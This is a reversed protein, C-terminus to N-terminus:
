ESPWGPAHRREHTTEQPRWASNGTSDSPLSGAILMSNLASITASCPVSLNCESAMRFERSSATRSILAHATKTIVPAFGFVVQSESMTSSSLVPNTSVSRLDTGIRWIGGRSWTNEGNAVDTCPRYVPPKRLRHPSRRSKWPTPDISSNIAAASAGPPQREQELYVQLSYTVVRDGPEAEALTEAITSPHTKASELLAAGQAFRVGYYPVPDTEAHGQGSWAQRAGIAFHWVVPM